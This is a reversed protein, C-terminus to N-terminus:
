HARDVGVLPRYRAKLEQTNAQAPSEAAGAPHETIIFSFDGGQTSQAVAHCGM